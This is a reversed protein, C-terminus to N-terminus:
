TVTAYADFETIPARYLQQFQEAQRKGDEANGANVITLIRWGARRLSDKLIQRPDAKRDHIGGFRIVLIANDTSVRAVNTWVDALQSTYAEQSNHQLQFSPKRYDVDARGGIFWVRLWQDPLYTRMGYYPPSTITLGARPLNTFAEPDRSDAQRVIAELQPVALDLCRTARKRIIELVNVRPPTLRRQRWFRVAYAPKPAFTRPCQNSFYSDSWKGRPGHLAGLIIARLITRDPQECDQILGARLRCIQRLVERDYALTWFEGKPVDIPAQESIMEDACRVVEEARACVLKAKSLAAAVPSSDIGISPLGNLRAAFNTTGRGCFPDLVWSRLPQRVKLVRLPFELPYM